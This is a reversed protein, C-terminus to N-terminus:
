EALPALFAVEPASIADSQDLYIDVLDAMRAELVAMHRRVDNLDDNTAAEAEVIQQLAPKAAEWDSGAAELARIVRDNDSAIIGMGPVGNRLAVLSREFLDAADTLDALKDASPDDSIECALLKIKQVYVEQREAIDFTLVDNMSVADDREYVRSADDMVALTAFELSAMSGSIADQYRAPADGALIMSFAVDLPQWHATVQDSLEADPIGGLLLNMKTRAAALDAMEDEVSADVAIMCASAVAKHVLVHMESASKMDDLATQAITGSATGLGLLLTGTLTLPRIYTM